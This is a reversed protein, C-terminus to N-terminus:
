RAVAKGGSYLGSAALGAVLGVLTALLYDTQTEYAIALNIGIGFVLAIIPYWRDDAIWRKCVEVLGIIVPVAALGIFDSYDM